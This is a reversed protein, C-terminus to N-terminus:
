ADVQSALKETALWAALYAGPSTLSVCLQRLSHCIAEIYATM